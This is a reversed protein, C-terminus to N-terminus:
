ANRWGSSWKVGFAGRQAALGPVETFRAHLDTEGNQMLPLNGPLSRTAKERPLKSKPVRWKVPLESKEVPMVILLYRM